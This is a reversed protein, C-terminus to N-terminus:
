GSCLVKRESEQIAVDNISAQRREMLGDADYDWLENGYSRWWQGADDHWEYQFTVAIRTDSFCFLQKELRYEHEKAWKEKLFARIQDRGKFFLDRNRWDSNPTYALSVRDPDRSNWSDQAAKVKARASEETFPPKIPTSMIALYDSLGPPLRSRFQAITKDAWKTKKNSLKPAPM